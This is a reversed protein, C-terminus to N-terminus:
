SRLHWARPRTFGQIGYTSLTLGVGSDGFGSWPLRPSVRDCCNWYLSGANVRSLVSHARDADPTYVGATLGYRTDNMLRVAEEDSSVKQIGILPGFSEEQMLEMDHNVDSFVTAEYWNGPGKGRHGGTHLTAGRAKADAVQADLVDLQPARTIAGIYTDESMPDGSKFGKVTEVFAAVFADYIREHVYIREVSCCSQGTNYMAGDALSEAAAKPEADDCVYTPDKGGLELQLKIFRSGVAKAIRSGTAHSGTFFLGDIPQELLAAGVDGAGVLATFVDRPVGAEHLLRAIELGTMTAFESPKYLVANGTLLAPVIVNCGVFWPYNWASINAIVGLPVHEIREKMGGEDYVTETATVPEVMGVFFDLRALLGNLENRSMRIPKGTERTMTIALQELDRVVLARFRDICLKREDLARAAWPGQAARAARAKDAVSAADDAPLDTIKEGTAPNYIALTTM